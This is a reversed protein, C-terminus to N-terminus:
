VTIVKNIGYLDCFRKTVTMLNRANTIDKIGVVRNIQLTKPIAQNLGSNIAAIRRCPNKAQGIVYRGDHLKLVFVYGNRIKAVETKPQHIANDLTRQMFNSRILLVFLTAVLLM